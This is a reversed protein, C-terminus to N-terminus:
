CHPRAKGLLFRIRHFRVMQKTSHPLDTRATELLGEIYTRPLSGSTAQGLEYIASEIEPMTMTKIDQKIVAVLVRV